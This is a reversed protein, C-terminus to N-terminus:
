AFPDYDQWAYGLGSSRAIETVNESAVYTRGRRDGRAHLLGTTALATLDRSATQEKISDGDDTISAIYRARTVTGGFMAIYLAHETREPLSHAKRAATIKDAAESTAAIRQQRELAQNLHATLMFRIWPRALEPDYNATEWNGQGVKALVDYYLQTRRGLYEEITLFIPAFEYGSALMLSQLVRAMRGNGDKFPHILVFNLHMMAANILNSEHSTRQRCLQAILSPVTEASAGEHVIDGTREQQVYVPGERFRGPWKTLDHQTIMFHLSRVLMPNTEFDSKALQLVFTMAEQYGALAHETELSVNLPKEGAAIANIDDISANIGEITNSGQVNRAFTMRRLEGNWRNNQRLLFQLSKNLKEIEALVKLEKQDLRPALFM